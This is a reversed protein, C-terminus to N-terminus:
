YMGNLTAEGRYASATQICIVLYAGARKGPGRPQM